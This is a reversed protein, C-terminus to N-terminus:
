LLLKKSTDYKIYSKFEKEDKIYVIKTKNLNNNKRITNLHTVTNQVDLDIIEVNNHKKMLQVALNFTITSKGVGGKQHSITIIM